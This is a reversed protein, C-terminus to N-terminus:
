IEDKAADDLIKEIVPKLKGPIEAAQAIPEYRFTSLDFPVRDNKDKPEFIFILRRKDHQRLAYGAEICVNPRHGTLDILIIDASQVAAYMEPHIPIAPETRTGFDVLELRVGKSAEIDTLTRKIQQLRLMARQLPAGESDPPYWRALFVKKPVRGRVKDYINLLQRGLPSNSDLQKLGDLGLWDALQNLYAVTRPLREEHKAGTCRIWAHVALEIFYQCKSFDPHSVSLHTSIDALAAVLEKASKRATELDVKFNPYAHLTERAAAALCTLPRNGLRERAPQPLQEFGNRLLRTFHLSPNYAFEQEARMSEKPDQGLILKLAHESDLPMATSNISHFVLSETYDAASADSPRLLILCFPVLYKSTNAADLKLQDAFHLRHNGDIRLIKKDTQIQALKTLDVKLEHITINKSSYKRELRIGDAGYYGVGQAPRTDQEWKWDVRLSLIIEPIFRRDGNEFYNKIERAHQEDIIRQHGLVQGPQTPNSQLEYAVSIKALDQLSAFGRIISFTGLVETAFQGEIIIYRKLKRPGRPM